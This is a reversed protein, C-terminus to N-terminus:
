AYLLLAVQLCWGSDLEEMKKSMVVNKEDEQAPSRAVHQLEARDSTTWIFEILSGKLAATSRRVGDTRMAAQCHQKQREM